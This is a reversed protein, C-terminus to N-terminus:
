KKLEEPLSGHNRQLYFVQLPEGGVQPGPTFYSLGFVSLRYRVLPRFPVSPNASRVIVWWRATMAFIVGINILLLLAIQALQLQKLANWIEVFPANRLAFYLLASLVLYLFFTRIYKNKSKTVLQAPSSTISM